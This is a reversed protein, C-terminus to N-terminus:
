PHDGDPDEPAGRARRRRRLGQVSAVGLMAGVGDALLDWPDSSRYPVWRQHLEDTAGYATTVLWAGVAHPWAWVTLGGLIAYATAHMAKDDHPFLPPRDIVGGPLSSGWFIAGAIAVPALWRARGTM